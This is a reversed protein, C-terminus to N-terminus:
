IKQELIDELHGIPYADLMSGETLNVINVNKKKAYRRLAYHHIFAMSFWRLEDGKPQIYSNNGRNIVKNIGEGYFHESKSSVFDSFDIGLLYINKYGMYIACQVAMISVNIAATMNKDMNIEIFEDHQLLKPYVFYFRKCDAKDKLAQYASYKVIFKTNSHNQYTNILYDLSEKIYFNPDIALHYTSEFDKFQQSKYFFNMTMTDFKKILDLDVNKLSPGNGIIFCTDTNTKLEKNRSIPIKFFLRKYCFFITSIFNYIVIFFITIKDIIQYQIM